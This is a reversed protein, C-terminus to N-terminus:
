REGSHLEVPSSATSEGILFPAGKGALESLQSNDFRLNWGYLVAELRYTGPKLSDALVKSDFSFSGTVVQGPKLLLADKLM